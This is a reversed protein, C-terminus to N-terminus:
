ARSLWPFGDPAAAARAALVKEDHGRIQDLFPFDEPRVTVKALPRVPTESAAQAPAIRREEVELAPQPSFTHGPLLYVTGTRWPRQALASATISFFYYASAASAASGASAASTAPDFSRICANCLSMSHGARDLIAYFMPWIGDTAAYIARRDGFELNDEARRPEFIEIDPEASGHLVINARDAVHCLFQWLPATLRYPLPSTRGRELAADLLNDFKAETAASAAPEPRRLWYEPLPRM